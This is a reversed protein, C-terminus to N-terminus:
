KILCYTAWTQGNPTVEPAKLAGTGIIHGAKRLRRMAIGVAFACTMSGRRPSPDITAVRGIVAASVFENPHQMLISLVKKPDVYLLGKPM